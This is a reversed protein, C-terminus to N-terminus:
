VAVVLWLIGGLREYVAIKKWISKEWFKRKGKPSFVAL